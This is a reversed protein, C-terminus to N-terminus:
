RPESRTARRSVQCDCESVETVPCDAELRMLSWSQRRLGEKLYRGTPDSMLGHKFYHCPSNSMVTLHIKNRVIEPHLKAALRNALMTGGAGGGVILIRTAM